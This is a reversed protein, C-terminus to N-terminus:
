KIRVKLNMEGWAALGYTSPQNLQGNSELVWVPIMAM